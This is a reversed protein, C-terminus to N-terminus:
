KLFEEMEKIKEKEQKLLNEITDKMYKQADDALGLEVAHRIASVSMNHNKYQIVLATLSSLMDVQSAISIVRENTVLIATKCSDIHGKMEEKTELIQRELEKDEM